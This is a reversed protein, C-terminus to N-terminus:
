EVKPLLILLQTSDTTDNAARLVTADSVRLASNTIRNRWRAFSARIMPVIKDETPEPGILSALFQNIRCM